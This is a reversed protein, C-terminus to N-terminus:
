VPKLKPNKTSLRNEFIQIVITVHAVDGFALHFIIGDVRLRKSM